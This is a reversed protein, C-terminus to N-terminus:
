TQSNIYEVLDEWAPVTADGELWMDGNYDRGHVLLMCVAFSGPVLARSHFYVPRGVERGNETGKRGPAVVAPAFDMAELLRAKSWNSCTTFFSSADGVPPLSKTDRLVQAVAATTMKVQAETMQEGLETRMGLALAGVSMGLIESSPRLLVLGTAMNQVYAAGADYIGPFRSRCDVAGTAAISRRSYSPLCKAAIRVALAMAIDGETIFPDGGKEAAADAADARCNALLADIRAKPICLTHSKLTRITFIQDWLFNAIWSAKRWGSLLRDAVVHHGETAVNEYLPKMADDMSKFEAIPQGHLNAVWAKVIALFGGLDSMVHSWTASVLTGDRFTIVHLGLQPVDDRLRDEMCRPAGPGYALPALARADGSLEAKEGATPLQSALPHEHM